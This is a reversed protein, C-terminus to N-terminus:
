ATVRVGVRLADIGADTWAANTDPDREWTEIYSGTTDGLPVSDGVAVTSGSGVEPAFSRSGIDTKRASATVQVAHIASTAPTFDAVNFLSEAGVTSGIINGAAANLREWANGSDPVWDQPTANSTLPLADVRIDGLWKLEDGYSLYFDEIDISGLPNGGSMYVQVANCTAASGGPRTDVNTLSVVPTGNLRIELSGSVGIVVGLQLHYWEGAAVTHGTTVVAGSGRYYELFGNSGLRVDAGGITTSLLGLLALNASNNRRMAAGMVVHTSPTVYNSRFSGHAYPFLGSLRGSASGHRGNGASPITFSPTTNGSFLVWRGASVETDFSDLLLEYAM